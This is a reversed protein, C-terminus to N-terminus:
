DPHIMIEMTDDGDDFQDSFDREELEIGCICLEGDVVALAVPELSKDKCPGDICLGSDIEFISGHRGCKLFARDPTFFDGNGFNLWIRQHPCSNAYGFYENAHTRIVVIPFPRAEGSENIRSLSFGKAGGQEIDDAACIVFVELQESSM